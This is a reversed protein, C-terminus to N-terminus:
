LSFEVGVSIASISGGSKSYGSYSAIAGIADSFQYGVKPRYFFAGDNGKPSIGIAYGLDLGVFFEDFFYRGSAAIPLFSYDKLKISGRLDDGFDDFKISKGLYHHYGVAPGVLLNDGVEFFYVGDVQFGLKSYDSLDGTPLSVSASVKIDQDQSFAMVSFLTLGLILVTKKM